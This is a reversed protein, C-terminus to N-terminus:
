RNEPCDKMPAVTAMMSLRYLMQNKVCKKRTIFSFIKEILIKRSLKESFNHDGNHIFVPKVNSKECLEEIEKKEFFQDSDGFLLSIPIKCGKIKDAVNSLSMQENFFSYDVPIGKRYGRGNEKLEKIMRVDFIRPLITDDFYVPSILIMKDFFDPIRYYNTLSVLSGICHGILIIKRQYKKYIYKTVKQVDTVHNEFTIDETDGDSEGMGSLDFRVTTFGSSALNNAINYYFRNYGTRNSSLYGHVILVVPHVRDSVEHIMGRLIRQNNKTSFNKLKM